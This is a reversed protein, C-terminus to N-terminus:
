LVDPDEAESDTFVPTAKRSREKKEKEPRTANKSKSSTGKSTKPAIQKTKSPQPTEIAEGANTEIDRIV